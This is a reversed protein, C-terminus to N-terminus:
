SANEDDLGINCILLTLTANIEDALYDYNVDQCSPLLRVNTTQPIGFWIKAAVYNRATAMTANVSASTVPVGSKLDMKKASSPKVRALQPSEATKMTSIVFQDTVATLIRRLIAGDLATIALQVGCKKSAV